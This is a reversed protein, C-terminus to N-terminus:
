GEPRLLVVRLTGEYRALDADATWIEKAGGELATALILADVLPLHLGHSLRVTREWRWSRRHGPPAP